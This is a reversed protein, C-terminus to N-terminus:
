TPRLGAATASSVRQTVPEAHAHQLRDRVRHVERRIIGQVLTVLPVFLLLIRCKGFRVGDQDQVTVHRPNRQEVAGRRIGADQVDVDIRELLLHRQPVHAGRPGPPRIGGRRQALDIGCQFGQGHIRGGHAVAARPQGATVLGEARRAGPELLWALHQRRLVHGRLYALGDALIGQHDALRDGVEVDHGIMGATALGPGVEDAAAAGQAPVATRRDTGLKRTRVRQHAREGTVAGVHERDGRRHVPNRAAVARREQLHHEVVLAPARRFEGHEPHMRIAEAAAGLLEIDAELRRRIVRADGGGCAARM